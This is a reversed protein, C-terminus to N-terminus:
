AVTTGMPEGLFGRFLIKDGGANVPSFVDLCIMDTPGIVWPETLYEEMVIESLDYIETFAKKTSYDRLKKLLPIVVQLKETEILDYTCSPTGARITSVHPNGSLLSVAYIAIVVTPPLTYNVWSVYQNALLPPTQWRPLGLDHARLERITLDQAQDPPDHKSFSYSLGKERARKILKETAIKRIQQKNSKAVEWVPLSYNSM